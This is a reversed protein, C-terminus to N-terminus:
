DEKLQRFSAEKEIWGALDINMKDFFEQFPELNEKARGEM